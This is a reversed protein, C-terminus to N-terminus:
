VITNHCNNEVKMLDGTSKLTWQVSLWKQKKVGCEELLAQETEPLVLIHLKQLSYM